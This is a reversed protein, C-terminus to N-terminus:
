RRPPSKRSYSRTAHAFRPFAGYLASHDAIIGNQSIKRNHASEDLRGTADAANQNSLVGVRFGL